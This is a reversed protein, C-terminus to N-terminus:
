YVSLYQTPNEDFYEGEVSNFTYMALWAEQIMKTGIKDSNGIALKKGISDSTYLCILINSYSSYEETLYKCLLELNGKSQNGKVTAFIKIQGFAKSVEEVREIEYTPLIQKKETETVKNSISDKLRYSTSGVKEAINKFDFEKLSDQKLLSNDKNSVFGNKQINSDPQIFVETGYAEDLKMYSNQDKNIFILDLTYYLLVGFFIVFFLKLYNKISLAFSHNKKRKYKEDLKSQKEIAEIRNKTQLAHFVRKDKKGTKKNRVYAQYYFYGDRGKRYISSM